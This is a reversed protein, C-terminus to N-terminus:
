KFRSFDKGSNYKCNRERRWTLLAMLLVRVNLAVCQSPTAKPYLEVGCRPQGFDVSTGGHCTSLSTGSVTSSFLSRVTM